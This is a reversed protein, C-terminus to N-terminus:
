ETGRAPIWSSSPRALARLSRLVEREQEADVASEITVAGRSFWASDSSSVSSSSTWFTPNLTRPYGPFTTEDILPPSARTEDLLTQFEKM